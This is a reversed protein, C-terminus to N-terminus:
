PRHSGRMVWKSFGVLPTAIGIAFLKILYSIIIIQWINAVLGYLGLLSFLITDLLQTVM